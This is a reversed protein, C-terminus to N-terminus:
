DGERTDERQLWEAVEAGVDFGCARAHRAVNWAGLERTTVGLEAALADVHDGPIGAADLVYACRVRLEDLDGLDVVDVAPVRRRM